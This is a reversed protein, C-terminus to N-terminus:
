FLEDLLIYYKLKKMDPEIGLAEFLAMADFNPYSVETYKGSFNHSLSRYCLAIDQYKDAIGARGLDILSSLKGDQIFINPLCFDGHSFVLDEEFDPAKLWELLAEPNEFGNEGFTEPEVNDLDYLQNEVQYTAAALHEKLTHAYPCNTIDVQWMQKLSAALIQTLRKPQRMLEDSCAMEGKAKEMLLYCKDDQVEFALVKPVPLQDKLWILMEYERRAEQDDQSIKLVMDEFVIIKAKSMGIEDVSYPKFAIKSQIALPFTMFNDVYLALQKEIDSALSLTMQLLKEEDLLEDIAMLKVELLAYQPKPKNQNYTSYQFFQWYRQYVQQNRGMLWLEIQLKRHNLVLGFRLEREKLYANQFPFYTYDLYGLSLQGTPYEQPFNAKLRTMLRILHRYTEQFKHTELIKIYDEFQKKM